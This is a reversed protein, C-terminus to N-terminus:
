KPLDELVFVNTILWYQINHVNYFVFQLKVQILVQKIILLILQPIVNVIIILLHYLQDQQVVLKVVQLQKCLEMVHVIKHYCELMILYINFFDLNVSVYVLTLAKYAQHCIILIVLQQLYVCGFHLRQIMSNIIHVVMVVVNLM